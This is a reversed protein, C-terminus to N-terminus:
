LAKSLFCVKLGPGYMYAVDPKTYPCILEKQTPPQEHDTTWADFFLLCHTSIRLLLDKTYYMSWALMLIIYYALMM